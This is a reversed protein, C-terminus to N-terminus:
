KLAETSFQTSELNVNGAFFKLVPLLMDGLHSVDAADWDHTEDGRKKFEKALLKALAVCGQKTGLKKNGRVAIIVNSRGSKTKPTGIRIIFDSMGARIRKLEVRLYTLTSASEAQFVDLDTSFSLYTSPLHKPENIIKM